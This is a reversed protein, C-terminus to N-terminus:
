IFCTMLSSHSKREEALMLRTDLDEFIKDRVAKAYVEKRDQNWARVALLHGTRVVMRLIPLRWLSRSDLDTLLCLNMDTM